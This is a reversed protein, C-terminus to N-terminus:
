SSVVKGNELKIVRDGLHFYRDDHTIVVVSKGRARLEPLLQRYFVEKYLPDQDAAWEDFVYLPRDELYATLLALRKRQGQSLDITSFKREMVEVKHDLQLSSLYAAASTQIRADEIGLLKEFLYFDSFVVSFHERYWERNADSLATGNLSVTGSHPVYLGTLLKVFTSKGSGNGGIVFSLEGPRLTLSIPGLSFPDNGRCDAAYEFTVSELILSQLQGAPATSVVNGRREVSEDLSVGLRQINEFAVQGREITPLIGIIGWIPSMMYLLVVVYGILSETSLPLMLPFVFLIVGIMSYFAFHSWAEAIAYQRSAEISTQRYLDAAGHIEHDLFEARRQRHLTLEKIGETLSRFHKFLQARAERSSYITSFARAHLWHYGWAGLLTATVVLLFTPWSLWLLYVGCGVVIAVNMALQPLSQISWALMSVDDTLTVLINAHGYRETRRYPSALIKQCLTLSLDLTTDQAFRTLALQSLIQTALKGAVAAVFGLALLGAQNPQQHLVRNILALVGASCLGSLVGVGVMMAMVSRSRQFLFSVFGPIRMNM